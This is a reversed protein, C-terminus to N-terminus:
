RSLNAPEGSRDLNALEQTFEPNQPFEQHLQGLLSRALRPQRERLAALALLVKAFPKLYHGSESALKLQQMGLARNGQIGAFSLFFRKYSPLCGIIYNAAGLALYADNANPNVLLLLRASQQTQRLLLLSSIHQKAILADYDAQMGNALTLVLLANPDRPSTKLIAEAMERAKDDVQLFDAQAADHQPNPVGGLLKKDNLFFAPTLIGQKNFEEFLYGAALSAEGMPDKPHEQIYSDFSARATSFRLEYMETFGAQLTAAQRPAALAPGCGMLAILLIAASSGVSRSGTMHVHAM